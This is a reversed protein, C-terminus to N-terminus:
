GSCRAWGRGLWNGEVAGGGGTGVLGRECFAGECLVPWVKLLAEMEAETMEELRKEMVAAEYAELQKVYTM